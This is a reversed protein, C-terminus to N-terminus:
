NKRSHLNKSVYYRLYRFDEETDLDLAENKNVFYLYPKKGIRCKQKKLTKKRIGYLGTTEQIIPKADQSRPLIKPSYNVAQNKFWFWSYIKQATFISDYKKNNKLIKICKNITSIKLLPATIFLQFYIDADIIKSHHNLLDNGNANDSALEPLRKIFNIKNKKCFKIIEKSDTDVFVDDFRCKNLKNLFHAYLPKNKVTRFNKRKIRRSISKIPIFAVVKLKRIM